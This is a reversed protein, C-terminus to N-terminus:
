RRRVPRRRKGQAECQLNIGITESLLSLNEEHALWLTFSGAQTPFVDRLNVKILRELSTAKM